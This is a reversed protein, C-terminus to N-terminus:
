SALFAQFRRAVDRPQVTPRGLNDLSGPAIKAHILSPGQSEQASKLATVFEDQADCLIGAQYGCAIAVQAPTAEMGHAIEGLLDM